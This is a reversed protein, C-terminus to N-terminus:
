GYNRMSVKKKLGAKADVTDASKEGLCHSDQKRAHRIGNLM